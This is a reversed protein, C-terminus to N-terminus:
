GGSLMQGKIGFNKNLFDAIQPYVGPYQWWYDHGPARVYHLISGYKDEPEPVGFLSALNARVMTLFYGNSFSDPTIGNDTLVLTRELMSNEHWFPRGTQISYVQQNDALIIMAQDCIVTGNSEGAIIVKLDSVHTTLFDVRYALDEAKSSYGTIMETVEGLRGGLNDVTRQHNLLLASYGSSNLESEIGNLISQWGPSSELTSWGWGGANFVVVFDKDKAELYAGLVQNVFDNYKEQTDGFLEDALKTADYTVSQPINSFDPALLSFDRDGAEYSIEPSLALLTLGVVM